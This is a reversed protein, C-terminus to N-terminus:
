VRLLSSKPLDNMFNFRESITNQDNCCNVEHGRRTGTELNSATRESPDDAAAAIAWVSRNGHFIQWFIANGSSM